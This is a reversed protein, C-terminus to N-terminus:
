NQKVLCAIQKDLFKIDARLRCFSEYLRALTPSSVVCVRIDNKALDVGLTNHKRM